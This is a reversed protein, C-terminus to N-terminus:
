VVSVLFSNTPSPVVCPPLGTSVAPAANPDFRESLLKSKTPVPLMLVVPFIVTVPLIVASPFKVKPPLKVTPSALESVNFKVAFTSDCM